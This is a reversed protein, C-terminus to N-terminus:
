KIRNFGDAIFEVVLIVACFLQHFHPSVVGLNQIKYRERHLICACLHKCWKESIQNFLDFANMITIM